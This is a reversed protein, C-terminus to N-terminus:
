NLFRIEASVGGRGVFGFREALRYGVEAIIKAERMWATTHWHGSCDAIGVTLWPGGEISLYATQGVLGCDAVAIFGDFGSLDLPLQGWEQRAAITPEMVGQAYQSLFGAVSPPGCDVAPQGWLTCITMIALTM